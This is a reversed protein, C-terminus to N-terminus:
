STGEALHSDLKSLRSFLLVISFSLFLFSFFYVLVSLLYIEYEELQSYKTISFIEILGPSHIFPLILIHLMSAKIVYPIRGIKPQLFFISCGLSTTSFMIHMEILDLIDGWYFKVDYEGSLYTAVLPLFSLLFLLILLLYNFRQRWTLFFLFRSLPSWSIVRVEDNKTNNWAQLLIRSIPYICIISWILGFCSYVVFYILVTM